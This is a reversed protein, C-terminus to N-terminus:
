SARLPYEVRLKPFRSFDRDNTCLTAGHELAATALDADPVLPGIAQSAIAIDAFMPWHRETPGLLTVSPQALWDNVIEVATKMAFPERMIRPSTTIRVFAIVTAYTLGTPEDSNVETTLWAKAAQHLATTSDYAYLLLNVDILKM